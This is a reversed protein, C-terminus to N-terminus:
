LFFDHRYRGGLKPVAGLTLVSFLALDDLAAQSDVQPGSVASWKDSYANILQFGPAGEVFPTDTLLDGSKLGLAQPSLRDDHLMENMLAVLSLSEAKQVTASHQWGDPFLHLHTASTSTTM